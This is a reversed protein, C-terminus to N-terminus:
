DVIRKCLVIIGNFYTGTVLVGSFLVSTVTVLVQGEEGWLYFSIRDSVMAGIEIANDLSIDRNV